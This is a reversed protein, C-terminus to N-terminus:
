LLKIHVEKEFFLEMDICQLHLEMRKIHIVVQHGSLIPIGHIGYWGHM